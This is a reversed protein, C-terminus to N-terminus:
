KVAAVVRQSRALAATAWGTAAISIFQDKDHPDGNDFWPQIPKSRTVVHWSGDELQSDTLYSLGERIVAESSDVGTEMLIFLTQGTAYADSNMSPKQSWGGDAQRAALIRDRLDAQREQAGGLLVGGWLAFNLDEQDELAATALWSKARDIAISIQEQQSASGFRQIGLASLVTCSVSSFELPPRNSPPKWSGDERQIRLLYSTMAETLEDAKEDSLALTWLGYSATAAQGGIQKGMALRERRETFSERTFKRQSQFLSEDIAIGADRAYKMALLPLTQHHCAFCTQHSPYERAGRQLVVLGRQVATKIHTGRTGPTADHSQRGDDAPTTGALMLLLIASLARPFRVRSM